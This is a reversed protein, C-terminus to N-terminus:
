RSPRPRPRCSLPLRRGLLRRGRPAGTSRFLGAGRRVVLFRTQRPSDNRSTTWGSSSSRSRLARPRRTRARTAEPARSTRPGPRRRRGGAPAARLDMPRWSVARRHGARAGGSLAPTDPRGRPGARVDRLSLRAAQRLTSGLAVEAGSRRPHDRAEALNRTRMLADGLWQYIEPFDSGEVLATQWARSAEADYGAAAFVAALYTLAATSDADGRIAQRSRGSRRHTSRRRGAIGRRRRVGARVAPAVRDRFAQLTGAELAEEARFARSFLERGVPLYVGAGAGPAAPAEASTM